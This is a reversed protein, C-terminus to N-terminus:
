QAKELSRIAKMIAEEAHSTDDDPVFGVAIVGKGEGVHAAAIVGSGKKTGRQGAKIQWLGVDFGNIKETEEPTKWLIKQKLPSMGLQKLVESLTADRTAAEKKADKAPFEFGLFAIAPGQEGSQAITASSLQAYVWGTTPNFAAAANPVKAKTDAKAECKESLAECKPPPPPAPEATPAPPPPPPPPKCGASLAVLAPLALLILPRPSM